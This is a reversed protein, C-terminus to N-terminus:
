RILMLYLKIAFLWAMVCGATLILIMTIKAMADIITDFDWKM